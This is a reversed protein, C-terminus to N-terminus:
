TAVEPWGERHTATCRHPLPEMPAEIIVGHLMLTNVATKLREREGLNVIFDNLVDLRSLFQQHM